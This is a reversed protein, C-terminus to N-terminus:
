TSITSALAAATEQYRVMAAVVVVMTLLGGDKRRRRQPVPPAELRRGDSGGQADSSVTFDLRPPAARAAQSLGQIACGSSTRIQCFCVRAPVCCHCCTSGDDARRSASSRRRTSPTSAWALGVCSQRSSQM